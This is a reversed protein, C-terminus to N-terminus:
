HHAKTLLKSVLEAQHTCHTKVFIRKLQSRVTEICCARLRAIQKVSRGAALLAAVECEAPTLGLERRLYANPIRAAEDPDTLMVICHRRYSFGRTDNLPAVTLSYAPKGSPRRARLLGPGKARASCGPKLAWKLEEVLRRNAGADALCLVGNGDSLGDSERLARAAPGNAAVIAFDDDIVVAACDVQEVVAMAGDIMGQRHVRLSLEMSRRIHPGLRDLYDVEQGTLHGFRRSRLM